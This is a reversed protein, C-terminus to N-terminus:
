KGEPLSAIGVCAMHFARPCADCLLLEGDHGCVACMDDGDDDDDFANAQSPQSPTGASSPTTMGGPSDDGDGPRHRDGDDFRAMMRAHWGVPQKGPTASQLLLRRHLSPDHRDM